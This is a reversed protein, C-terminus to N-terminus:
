NEYQYLLISQRYQFHLLVNKVSARLSRLPMNVVSCVSCVSPFVAPKYAPGCFETVEEALIDVILNRVEGRLWNRFVDGAISAEVQGLDELVSSNSM